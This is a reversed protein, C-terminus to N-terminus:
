VVFPENDGRHSCVNKRIEKLNFMHRRGDILKELQMWLKRQAVTQVRGNQRAIILEVIFTLTALIMGTAFVWLIPTLVEIFDIPKTIWEEIAYIESQVKAQFNRLWKINLGGELIGRIIKNIATMGYDSRIALSVTYNAINQSRDFCFIEGNRYLQTTMAHTRSVAVALDFHDDHSLRGLCM